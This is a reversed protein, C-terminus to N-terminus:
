LDAEPQGFSLCEEGSECFAKYVHARWMRMKGPFSRGFSKMKYVNCSEAHTPEPWIVPVEDTMRTLESFKGSGQDGKPFVWVGRNPRESDTVM